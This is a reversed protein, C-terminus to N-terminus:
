DDLLNRIVSVVKKYSGEYNRLTDHDKEISDLSISITSLNADKLKKIIKSSLLMGNTTIGWKYGLEAAFAGVNIVDKRILPEGGIIAFTIRDSSYYRVIEKLENKILDVGIENIATSNDRVCDSGCHLCNLNCRLTAEWFLYRLPHSTKLHKKQNIFNELAKIKKSIENM